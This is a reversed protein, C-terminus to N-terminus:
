VEFEISKVSEWYKRCLIEYPIAFMNLSVTTFAIDNIKKRVEMAYTKPEIKMAIGIVCVSLTEWKRKFDELTMKKIDSLHFLENRVYTIQQLWNIVEVDDCLMNNNHYNDVKVVYVAMSIDIDSVKIDEKGVYKCICIQSKKGRFYKIHNRNERSNDEKYLVMFQKFTCKTENRNQREPPKCECCPLTQFFHFFPEKIRIQNLFSQFEDGRLVKKEIFEKIVNCAIEM